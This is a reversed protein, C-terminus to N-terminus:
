WELALMLCNLGSGIGMLAVRDGKNVGLVNQLYSAFDQSLRDVDDYSLVVGMNEFAPLDRFKDCSTELVQALSAYASSDIDSPVGKMYGGLWIREGEAQNM